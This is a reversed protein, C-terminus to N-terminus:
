TSPEDHAHEHTLLKHVPFANIRVMHRNMMNSSNPGYFDDPDLDTTPEKTTHTLLAQATIDQEMIKKFFHGQSLAPILTKIFPQGKRLADIDAPV